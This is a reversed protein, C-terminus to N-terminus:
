EFVHYDFAFSQGAPPSNATCISFSSTSRNVYYNLGGAASGIPTVVVHPTSNFKNVFSVTAFCGAGPGGGTNINVTGATDTGSVSSTGGSGLSSGDSKGPTAGGTVVHRTFSLDGNLQLGDLTLQSASLAGAVSLNGGVTLGQQIALQGQIATNGSVELGSVKVQDFTSAGSVAIGPISLTGGVKLQGAVELSEKVLVKGSFIANSEISLIKKPDGVRVDSQKLQDLTEQSLTETLLADKKEEEKKNKQYGLFTVIMALVIILGFLLLYINFSTLKEIGRLVRNKKKIEAGHTTDTVGDADTKVDDESNEDITSPNELSNDDEPPKVAQSQPDEKKDEENKQEM